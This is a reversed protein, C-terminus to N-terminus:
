IRDINKRCLILIVQNSDSIVVVLKTCSNTAFNKREFFFLLVIYINYLSSLFWSSLCFLTIWGHKVDVHRFNYYYKALRYRLVDLLNRKRSLERSKFDVYLTKGFWRSECILWKTCDRSVLVGPFGNLLDQCSLRSWLFM